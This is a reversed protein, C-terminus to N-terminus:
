RSKNFLVAGLRKASEETCVEGLLAALRPCKQRLAELTLNEPIRTHAVCVAGTPAWAAEFRFEPGSESAQVGHDDYIDITTGERTSPVGDGCYDARAMHVCAEYLPQLATGDPAQKWPKYGFRVCKAQAGSTCTLFFRSPDDHLRGDDSWRGSLPFGERRGERDPECANQWESGAARVGLSYLLTEGSPDGPDARVEDIRVERGDGLDLEAGVLEAGRLVRGDGLTLVFATGEVGLKQDGAQIARPALASALLLLTSLATFSPM